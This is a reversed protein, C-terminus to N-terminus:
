FLRLPSKRTGESAQKYFETWAIASFALVAGIMTSLDKLVLYLRSFRPESPFDVWKGENNATSVAIGKDTANLIGWLIILGAWILSTGWIWVGLNAAAFTHYHYYLFCGGASAFPAACALFGVVKLLVNM